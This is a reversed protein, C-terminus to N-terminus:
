TVKYDNETILHNSIYLYMMLMDDIIFHDINCIADIYGIKNTTLWFRM